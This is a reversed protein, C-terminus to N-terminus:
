GAAARDVLLVVRSPAFRAVVAAQNALLPAVASVATRARRRHDAVTRNTSVLGPPLTLREPAGVWSLTGDAGLDLHAVDLRDPLDHTPLPHLAFAAGVHSLLRRKAMGYHSSPHEPAVEFDDVWWLDVMWWDIQTEAHSALREYCRQAVDGGTLGLHFYEGRRYHFSEVIREAFEGALDDVVEVVATTSGPETSTM